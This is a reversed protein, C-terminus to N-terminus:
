QTSTQCSSHFPYLSKFFTLSKGMTTTRFVCLISDFFILITIKIPPMQIENMCSFHLCFMRLSCKFNTKEKILLAFFLINHLLGSSHEMRLKLLLKWLRLMIMYISLMKLSCILALIESFYNWFGYFFWKVCM